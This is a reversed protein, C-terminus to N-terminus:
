GGLKHDKTTAASPFSYVEWGLGPNKRLDSKGQPGAGRGERVLMECGKIWLQRQSGKSPLGTGRCNSM